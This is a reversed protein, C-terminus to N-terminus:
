VKTSIGLLQLIGRLPIEVYEPRHNLEYGLEDILKRWCIPM